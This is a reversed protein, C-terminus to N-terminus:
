GCWGLFLTFPDEKGNHDIGDIKLCLGDGTLVWAAFIAAIVSLTFSIFIFSKM